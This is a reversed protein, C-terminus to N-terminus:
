RWSQAPAIWIAMSRRAWCAFQAAPSSIKAYFWTEAPGADVRLFADGGVEAGDAFLAVGKEVTLKAGACDLDSDIKAGGLSIKGSFSSRFLQLFGHLKITDAHFECGGLVASDWFLIDQTEAQDLIVDGEVTCCRFDLRVPIHSGELDLDTPLTVGYVRIGKPDIQGATEPDTALWRVLESRVKPRPANEDPNSVEVSCASDNLVKLEADSLEYDFREQALQILKRARLEDFKSM